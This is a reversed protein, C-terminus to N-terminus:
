AESMSLLGADLREGQIKIKSLESDIEKLDESVQPTTETLLASM